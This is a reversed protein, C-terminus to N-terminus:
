GARWARRSVMLWPLYVLPIPLTFGGLVCLEFVAFHYWHRVKPPYAYYVLFPVVILFGLVVGFAPGARVDTAADGVFACAGGFAVLAITYLASLAIQAWLPREGLQGAGTRVHSGVTAGPLPAV